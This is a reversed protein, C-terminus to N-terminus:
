VMVGLIGLPRTLIQVNKQEANSSAGARQLQTAEDARIFCDNL